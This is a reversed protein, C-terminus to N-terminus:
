TRNGSKDRGVIDGGASAKSQDVISGGGEVRNQKTFKLTLLSGGIAGAIFSGIESLHNKLIDM